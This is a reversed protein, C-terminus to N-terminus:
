SQPAATCTCFKLECLIRETNACLIAIFAEARVENFFAIFVPLVVFVVIVFFAAFTVLAFM